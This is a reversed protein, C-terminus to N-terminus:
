SIQDSTEKLYKFVMIENSDNQGVYLKGDDDVCLGWPDHIGDAQSLIVSLFRGNMDLLHVSPNSDHRNCVIVHGLSDNCIGTPFFEAHSPLGDYSFQLTGQRDVAKVLCTDIDSTCVDGNINESLYMPSVYLRKGEFYEIESILRGDRTYRALKTRSGKEILIYIGLLLDGNVKSSFISLITWESALLNKEDQNPPCRIVKDGRIVLIVGSDGVTHSASGWIDDIRVENLVKGSQNSKIVRKRNSLWIEKSTALSIHNVNFVNPISIRHCIQIPSLM